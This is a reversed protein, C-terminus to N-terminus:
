NFLFESKKIFRRHYAIVFVDRPLQVNHEVGAFNSLHKLM